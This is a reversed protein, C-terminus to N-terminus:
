SQAKQWEVVSQHSRTTKVLIQQKWMQHQILIMDGKNLCIYYCYGWNHRGTAREIEWIMNVSCCLAALTHQVQGCLLASTLPTTGFHSRLECHANPGQFYGQVVAAMMYCSCSLQETSSGSGRCQLPPPSLFSLKGVPISFIDWWQRLSTGRQEYQHRSCSLSTNSRCQWWFNLM